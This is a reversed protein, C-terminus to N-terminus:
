KSTIVKFEDNNQAGFFKRKKAALSLDKLPPYMSHKRSSPSPISGPLYEFDNLCTSLEVRKNGLCRPAQTEIM